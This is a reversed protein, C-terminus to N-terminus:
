EGLVEAETAETEAEAEATAAPPVGGEIDSLLHARQETFFDHVRAADNCAGKFTAVADKMTDRSPALDKDNAKLTSSLEQAAQELAMFRKHKLHM